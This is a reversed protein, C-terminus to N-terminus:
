KPPGETLTWERILWKSNRAHIADQVFQQYVGDARLVLKGDVFLSFTTGSWELDLAFRPQNSAVTERKTLLKLDKQATAYDPEDDIQWWAGSDSSQVFKAKVLGRQNYLFGIGFQAVDSTADLLEVDAHMTVSTFPNRKPLVSFAVTAHDPHTADLVLGEAQREVGPTNRLTDQLRDPALLNVQTSPPGGVRVWKAGVIKGHHGHGSSDKLVDGTNEDLHYLALTDADATLRRQPTFESEYRVGQSVRVERLMGVYDYMGIRLPDNKAAVIQLNENPVATPAPSWLELPQNQPKGDVFLRMRGREDYVGAVHVLRSPLADLPPSPAVYWTKDASHTAVFHWHPKDKGPPVQIQLYFQDWVSVLGRMPGGSRPQAWCEITLSGPTSPVPLVAQVDNGEGDFDLLGGAAPEALAPSENLRVWKAGVIKGHHNHGSVDALVDGMGEDFRYLIQTDSDPEFRAPPAFPQDYRATTSIRVQDILGNLPGWTASAQISSGLEAAITEPPIERVLPAKGLQKGDLYLRLEKGRSVAAIHVRQEAELVNPAYIRNYNANAERPGTWDLGGTVQKLVLLGRAGFLLQHGIDWSSRATYYMEVTM